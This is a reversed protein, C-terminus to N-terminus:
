YLLSLNATVMLNFSIETKRELFAKSCWDQIIRHPNHLNKDNIRGVATFTKSYCVLPQLFMGWNDTMQKSGSGM